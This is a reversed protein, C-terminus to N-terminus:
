GYKRKQQKTSPPSSFFSFMESATKNAQEDKEAMSLVRNQKHTASSAMVRNVGLRKCWAGLLQSSYKFGRARDWEETQVRYLDAILYVADEFGSLNNKEVYEDFRKKIEEKTLM